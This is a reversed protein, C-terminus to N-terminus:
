KYQIAFYETHSSYFGVIADIVVTGDSILMDWSVDDPTLGPNLYIIHYSGPKHSWQGNAEQRMFHYDSLLHGNIMQSGTRLAIRYETESIESDPGEIPRINRGENDKLVVAKVAAIDSADDVKIGSEDGVHRWVTEYLAHAYCNYRKELDNENNNTNQRISCGSLLAICGILLIALAWSKGSPDFYSVPNNCCYKFLSTGDIECDANIFRGRNANYYRSRLYYFDIEDDYVYGRYRFPNLTGLTPALTGTKISPKGWADYTYEVVKTGASNILAIVDGQLNYM